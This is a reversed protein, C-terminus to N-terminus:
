KFHGGSKLASWFGLMATGLGVIYALPKAARGVYGIVRMAGKWDQLIEVMDATSAEVRRTAATNEGLSTEFADMRRDTAQMHLHGQALAADVLTRWERMEDNTM